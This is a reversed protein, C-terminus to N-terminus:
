FPEFDLFSGAIHQAAADFHCRARGGLGSPNAMKGAQTPYRSSM